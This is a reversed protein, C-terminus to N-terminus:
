ASILFAIMMDLVVFFSGAAILPITFRIKRKGMDLRAADKEDLPDYQSAYQGEKTMKRMRKFSNIIGNFFGGEYVFLFLGAMLFFLGILFTANVFSTFFSQPAIFSYLASVLINGFFLIFITKM